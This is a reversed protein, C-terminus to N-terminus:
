DQKENKWRKMAEDLEKAERAAEKREAKLKAEIEEPLKIGPKETKPKM